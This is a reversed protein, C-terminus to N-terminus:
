KFINSKEINVKEADLLKEDNNAKNMDLIHHISQGNKVREIQEKSLCCRGLLLRAGEQIKANSVEVVLQYHERDAEKLRNFYAIKCLDESLGAIITKKDLDEKVAKPNHWAEGTSVYLVQDQKLNTLDFQEVGFQDFIRRAASTLGLAETCSDLFTNFEFERYKSVKKPNHLFEKMLNKSDLKCVYVANAPDNGIDSTGNKIVRFRINVNEVKRDLDRLPPAGPILSGSIPWKFQEIPSENEDFPWTLALKHWEPTSLKSFRWEGISKSGEQKIAWRQTKELVQLPSKKEDSFSELLFIGYKKSELETYEGNQSVLLDHSISSENKSLASLETLLLDTSTMVIKSDSLAKSYISGHKSFSWQMDKDRYNNEDNLQRAGLVVAYGKKVIVEPEHHNFDAEGRKRKLHIELKIQVSPNLMLCIKPFFSSYIYGAKNFKWDQSGQLFISESQKSKENLFLQPLLLVDPERKSQILLRKAKSLEVEAVDNQLFESKNEFAFENLVSFVDHEGLVEWLNPKEDNLDIYQAPQHAPRYFDKPAPKIASMYTRINLDTNYISSAPKM